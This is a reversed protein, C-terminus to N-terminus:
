TRFVLIALLLNMMPRRVNSHGTPQKRLVELPPRRALKAMISPRNWLISVSSNWSAHARLTTMDGGDLGGHLRGSSQSRKSPSDQNGPSNYQLDVALTALSRVIEVARVSVTASGGAPLVPIVIM